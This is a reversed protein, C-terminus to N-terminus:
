KKKKEPHELGIVFNREIEGTKIIVDILAYKQKKSLKPLKVQIYEEKEILHTQTVTLNSGRMTSSVTVNVPNNSSMRIFFNKKTTTCFSIFDINVPFKTDPQMLLNYAKLFDTIGYGLADDPHSYQAGSKRIADMIEANTKAPFAQWLCVVMGSLIPSSFSTGNARTTRGFPNGVWTGEGVAVADPKVRGDATPGFSSFPAKVGQDNVAGVSLIDKADAPSGIHKWKKQGENGASNCILMGKSAAITAARSARSTEGNLDTFTRKRLTDDFKTYGLSSNLVKCGLSDAWEVGAVWNDEEVTNESRSDETVAFYAMVNPASGILEGSINAAICSFVMTGHSEKRFITNGPLVFNRGGLIRNEEFIKKFHRLTDANQFGADMIMMVMGEGKFGMRHLWHVNNVRLQERGKGYDLEDNISQEIVKSAEKPTYYFREKYPNEPKKMTITKECHKVFPLQEVMSQISDLQSYITIGNLWKSRTFLMMGSDLAMVTSIYHPNVPIDTEEIRINYRKRNEIARTSLFEEPREISYLSGKKDTFQVWYKAPSQAFLSNFSLAICLLIISLKRM